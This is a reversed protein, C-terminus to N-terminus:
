RQVDLIRDRVSCISGDENNVLLVKYSRSLKGSLVSGVSRDWARSFGITIEWYDGSLAIEELGVDAIGEDDFLEVVHTKAKQVADRMEM